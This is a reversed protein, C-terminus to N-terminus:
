TSALAAPQQQQLPPILSHEAESRADACVCVSVCRHLSRATSVSNRFLSDSVHCVDRERSKVDREACMEVVSLKCHRERDAQVGGVRPELNTCENNQLM